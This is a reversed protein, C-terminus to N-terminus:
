RTFALILTVAIAIAALLVSGVAILQGSDLRQATKAEYSGAAQGTMLNLRNEISSAATASRAANADVKEVLAEHSALYEARPLFQRAQDALQGRFENVAEFRKDYSAESKNVAEKQAALAAAVGEKQADFATRMATTQALFAAATEKDRAALANEVAKEQAAFRQEYRKDLDAAIQELHYRLSDITWASIDKETEGSM